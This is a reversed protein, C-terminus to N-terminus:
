KKYKNKYIKKINIKKINIEEIKELVM